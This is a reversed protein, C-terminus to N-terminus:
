ETQARRAAEVKTRMARLDEVTSFTRWYAEVARREADTGHTRATEIAREAADADRMAREIAEAFTEPAQTTETAEDNM